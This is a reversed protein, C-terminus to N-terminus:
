FRLYLNLFFTTGRGQWYKPGFRRRPAQSEELLNRYNANRAQEYGGTRYVEGLLNNISGFFGLYKDGLKWSKGGVLNVVLFDDFREQQLLRRAVEEDYDEFPLGDDDLLFNQTRSIPSVDLYSDSFGNVTAGMWWFNPDRYEFGLSYAQHPGVALRYNKLRSQGLDLHGQAFDDSTLYLHPDNTYTYQGVSAAAKLKLTSLLQIDLGMEFGLHQKDVGQLIEQVFASTDGGIGDTFFFSVETADKAQIYFGSLRADLTPTRYYYSLDGSILSEESLNTGIAAGVTDNNERPNSFSNRITPPQKLLAVNMDIWHRGTLRYQWGAKIGLETFRLEQSKGKSNDAFAAHRFQGDRHYSTKNYNLAVYAKSNEPGFAIQTTAGWRNADMIYHYRYKGGLGILADGGDLDYAHQDYPDVNRLGLGGLLDIPEAFNDSRLHIYSLAMTWLSHDGLHMEASTRWSFLRDDNRDEYLAFAAPLGSDTKTQNAEYLDEWNIQGHTLFEQELEFAQGYDPGENNSLAYSPLKQYYTPDPNVGGSYDLRSNGIEGFQYALSTQVSMQDNAQWYHSAMLIPEAVRKIRANRKTGEQFGWYANYRTGKLDYVEQTHPSSKGRRNPTFMLTLNFSHQDDFIKDASFMFSQADYFTGEQFGELGWRGGIAAVFAWNNPNLGTAYSALVRQNYSRDSFSYTLRGGQRFNTARTSINTTGILGGFHASSPRHYPYLTSNRLVDNLGGWNSWQPRGDSFKNMEINNLLLKGYSSDLGRMRFFAVSFEFAVTRLFLDESSQLLGSLNDSIATDDDLEDDTLSILGVAEVITDTTPFFALTGLDNQPKETSFTLIFTLAEYGPASLVVDYKGMPLGYVIVQGPANVQASFLSDGIQIHVEELPQLSHADLPRFMLQTNQALLLQSFFLLFPCIPKM